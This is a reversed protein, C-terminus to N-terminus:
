HVVSYTFAVRGLRIVDGDTLTTAVISRGNVYTGSSSADDLVRMQDAYRSVIAHRRSVRIDEIRIEASSSRGLHLVDGDIPILHEAGDADEFGLYSGPLATRRSVSRARVGHHLVGFTDAPAPLALDLEATALAENGTLTRAAADARRTLAELSTLM